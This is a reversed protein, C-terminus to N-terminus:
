GPEQRRLLWFFGLNKNITAGRHPVWNRKTKQGLIPITQPVIGFASIGECSRECNPLFVEPFVGTAVATLVVGM